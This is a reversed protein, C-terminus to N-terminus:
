YKGRNELWYAYGKDTMTRERIPRVNPFDEAPNKLSQEYGEAGKVAANKEMAAPMECAESPSIRSSDKRSDKM